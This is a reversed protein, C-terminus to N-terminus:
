VKGAKVAMRGPNDLYRLADWVDPGLAGAAALRSM